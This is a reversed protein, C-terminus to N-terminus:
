KGGEEIRKILLRVDPSGAYGNIHAVIEAYASDSQLYNVGAYHIAAVAAKLANLLECVLPKEPEKLLSWGNDRQGEVQGCIACTRIEAIIINTGSSKMNGKVWTHYTM